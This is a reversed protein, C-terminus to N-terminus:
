QQYKTHNILQSVLHKSSKQNELELNVKMAKVIEALSEEYYQYTYMNYGQYVTQDYGSLFTKQISLFEGEGFNSKLLINKGVNYFNLMQNTEMNTDMNNSVANLVKYFTNINRITKVKNAIATVIAQQHEVRKFDSLAWQHRNRAYALAQEGNLHQMGPKIYVIHEGFERNSNQECVMGKCDVSGNKKFDPEDINVDIGDLADVLNVVGKFNIKVFYDITIDTLNEITNIM